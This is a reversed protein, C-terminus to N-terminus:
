LSKKAEGATASLILSWIIGMVCVFPIQWKEDVLGFMVLQAPIWYILNRKWCRFFNKKARM